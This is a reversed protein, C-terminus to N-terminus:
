QAPVAYQTLFRPYLYCQALVRVAVLERDAPAAYTPLPQVLCETVFLEGTSNLWRHLAQEAVDGAQRIAARTSAPRSYLMLELQAVRRIDGDAGGASLERYRLVGYPAVADDPADEIWLQGSLATALTPSGDIPTFGLLQARVEQAIAITSVTSM